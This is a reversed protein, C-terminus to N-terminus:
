GVSSGLQRQACAANGRPGGQRQRRWPQNQRLQRGGVASEFKRSKAGMNAGGNRRPVQSRSQREERPIMYAPPNTAHVRPRTYHLRTTSLVELITVLEAMARNLRMMTEANGRGISFIKLLWFRQAVVSPERSTGLHAAIYVLPSFSPFVLPLQPFRNYEPSNLYPKEEGDHLATLFRSLSTTRM